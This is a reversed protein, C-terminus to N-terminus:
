ENEKLYKKIFIKDIKTLYKEMYVLNIKILPLEIPLEVEYLDKNKTAIETAEKMVYAIGLGQKAAEIRMETIDAQLTTNIKVKHQKLIEFLEKTSVSNEYNLIFNYNELEKLNNIKLPKNYVFTNHIKKLTKIKIENKAEPPIVDLIVFDVLHKKLMDILGSYNAAGFIDIKLNPYDKKIESICKALYSISIHSPCGIIIKSKSIDNEQMFSDIAFDIDKIKDKISEYLEKGKETLKLGDRERYFLVTDLQNELNKIHSSITSEGVFLRKSAEAYNETEAVTCFIKYLNLNADSM